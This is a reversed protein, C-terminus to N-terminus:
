YDNINPFNEPSVKGYLGGHNIFEIRDDYEYFQIPANTEYTRHIIANMILERTAWYPYSFTIEERLASVLVPKRNVITTDIFADLKSLITCLNGKFAYERLIDGAKDKGSFRVYQIFSGPLHYTPNKGFLIIAANTPANYRMDFFRLSALQETIDRKDEILVDEAVAKSLYEKKFIAIDLDDINADRCPYADFTKLHLLRRESLQKEETDSAISKRPGVRVWTRGRYRVPPFESPQVEVVLLDGESYSFKEINMLPQPLINGDTRINSIKLLLRDDVKLGSLSGNDFAGIILYGNSASASIDNSFACIVQCFKDMSDTSITRETNHSETDQLLVNLQDKTIM